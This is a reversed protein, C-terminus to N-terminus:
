LAMAQAVDSFAERLSKLAPQIESREPYGDAICRLWDRAHRYDSWPMLVSCDGGRRSTLERLHVRVSEHELREDPMTLQWCSRDTQITITIRTPTHDLRIRTGLLSSRQPTMDAAALQDM